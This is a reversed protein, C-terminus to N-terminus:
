ISSTEDLLGTEISLELLLVSHLNGTSHQLDDQKTDTTDTQSDEGNFDFHHLGCNLWVVPLAQFEEIKKKFSLEKVIFAAVFSSVLFTVEVCGKDVSVLELASPNLHLVEAIAVKLDIVKAVRSTHPINFKLVLKESTAPFKALKPNIAVFESVKHKNIYAKFHEPYNLEESVAIKYQKQISHFIDYHLFTACNKQLLTITDYISKALSIEARVVSLLKYREEDEDKDCDLASLDLLYVRLSEVSVDKISEYIHSVYSAYRDKIAKLNLKLEMKLDEKVEPDLDSDSTRAAEDQKVHDNSDMEGSIFHPYHSCSSLMIVDSTCSVYTFLDPLCAM